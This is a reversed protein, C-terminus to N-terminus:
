TFVLNRGIYFCLRLDATCHSCLQDNDKNECFLYYLGEYDLSQFKLSTAKKSSQVPQNTDSRTPFGSSQKEQTAAIILCNEQYIHHM